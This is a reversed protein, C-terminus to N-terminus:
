RRRAAAAPNAAVFAAIQETTPVTGPPLSARLGTLQVATIQTGVPLGEAAVEAPTLVTPPTGATALFAAIQAATPVTGAPLSARLATLQAATIQTGLPLGEAAVQAPTLVGVNGALFAAIQAATPITGPLLTALLAVLQVATIQTGVPLGAAAVQAPTLLGTPPTVVPTNATVATALVTTKATIDSALATIQALMAPTAGAAMAADIATQILAPIGNLLVVASDIVTNEATVAATLDDIAAMIKELNENFHHISQRIGVLEEHHHTLSHQFGALRDFIVAFHEDLQKADFPSM